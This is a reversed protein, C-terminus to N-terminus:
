RIRLKAFCRPCTTTSQYHLTLFLSRRDGQRRRNRCRPRCSSLRLLAEQNHSWGSLRRQRQRRRRRGDGVKAFCATMLRNPNPRRLSPLDSPVDMKGRNTRWGGESSAWENMTSRTLLTIEMLTDLMKSLGHLIRHLRPPATHKYLTNTTIVDDSIAVGKFRLVQVAKQMLFMAGLTHHFRTHHAGPYVLYSMGM